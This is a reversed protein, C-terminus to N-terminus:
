KILFERKFIVMGIRYNEPSPCKCFQYLTLPEWDHWGEFLQEPRIPGYGIDPRGKDSGWRALLEALM